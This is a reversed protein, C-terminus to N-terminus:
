SNYADVKWGTEKWFLQATGLLQDRNDTQGAFIINKSARMSGNDEIKITVHSTIGGGFVDSTHSSHYTILGDRESISCGEYRVGSVFNCLNSKTIAAIMLKYGQDIMEDTIKM